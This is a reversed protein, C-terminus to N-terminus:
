NEGSAKAVILYQFVIFDRLPGFTMRKLINDRRRPFYTRRLLEIQYGAEKFLSEVDRRAFFRLHSRDLCGSEQYKWRGQLLGWIVSYYRVNPISAVVCGDQNLYQKYKLLVSWPDKLHELVNGYVICDFYGKPFLLKIQEVDGVVIRDLRREAEGAIQRNLEVGIVEEAGREKLAAGLVGTGCGVDLVRKAGRPIIGLLNDDLSNYYRSDKQKSM